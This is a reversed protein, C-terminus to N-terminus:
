HTDKQSNTVTHVYTWADLHVAKVLCREDYKLTQRSMHASPVPKLKWIFAMRDRVLNGWQVCGTLGRRFRVKITSGAVLGYHLVIDDHPGTQQVCHNQFWRPCTANAKIPSGFLVSYFWMHQTGSVWPTMRNYETRYLLIFSSAADATETWCIGFIFEADSTFTTLYM